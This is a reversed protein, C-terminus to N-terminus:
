FRAGITFLFLRRRDEPEKRIPTGLYLGIPLPQGLFPFNLRLGGGVVLRTKNLALEDLHPALNGYDLFVVGRLMKRFIPFTYELNGYIQATGGVPDRNEHPGMGRFRFGRVDNPGGLFFREFIPVDGGEHPDIWGFRNTLSIVHHLTDIGSQYEYLPFYFDGVAEYKHFDVEGGLFGGAYEYFLNTHTGDYPGELYEYLVKDYSLSANVTYIRTRGKAEVAPSPADDDLRRIEVSELRSGLRAVFDRDFDFAHGVRPAFTTRDEDYDRRVITLKSASITLPNRTDFPYPETFSFRYLSRRTGPQAALDLTQGNGTFSDPISYFSDPFDTFDFNRKTIAFNGILGFGSTVGFGLILRGTSEEEVNVVVHRNGPASGPEYSYEVARFFQLRHLNSRSELLKSRDIREGPNFELERRIVKERTQTNLDTSAISSFMTVLGFVAGVIIAPVVFLQFIFGASPPQVPPLNEPSLGDQSASNEDPASRPEADGDFSGPQPPTEESM